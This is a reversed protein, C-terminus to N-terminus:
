AGSSPRMIRAIGRLLTSKGCANAGVIVTVRGGPVALDLDRVVTTGDYALSLAHARLERPQEPPRPTM